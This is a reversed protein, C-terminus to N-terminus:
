EFPLSDTIDDPINAFDDNKNKTQGKKDNGDSQKKEIFTIKGCIVYHYIVKKGDKEYNGQRLEGSVALLQGKSIYKAINEAITNFATCNIFDTEEANHAVALSFNCYNTGKKSYRLEPNATLRGILNINNM